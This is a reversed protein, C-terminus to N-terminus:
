SNRDIRLDAKAFTNNVVIFFRCYVFHLIVHLFIENCVFFLVQLRFLLNLPIFYTEIRLSYSGGRRMKHREQFLSISVFFLSLSVCFSFLTRNNSLKNSVFYNHQFLLLTLFQSSITASRSYFLIFYLFLSFTSNSHFYATM